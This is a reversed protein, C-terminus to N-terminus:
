KPGGLEKEVRATIEDLAANKLLIIGKPSLLYLTPFSGPAYLTTNPGSRTNDLWNRFGVQYTELAQHAEAETDTNVGLVVVPRDKLRAATQNILPMTTHCARCWGGWFVLIVHKGRYDSLKFAQGTADKGELEPAECGPQLNALEFLMKGALDALRSGGVVVDAYGASLRQFYDLAKTKSAEAAAHDISTNFVKFHITGLAYLAAAKEERHRNKQLVATLIPEASPGNNELQRLMDAIGSIEAYQSELLQLAQQGEPLSSARTIVWCLGDVVEAKGANAQVLAMLKAACPGPSPISARDQEKEAESKANIIKLSNVRVSVEYEDILSHIQAPLDQAVAQVSFLLALVLLTRM